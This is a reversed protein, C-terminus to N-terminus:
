PESKPLIWDVAAWILPNSSKTSIADLIIDPADTVISDVRIAVMERATTQNNVTWVFVEKGSLHLNLVMSRTLFSAEVSYIDVDELQYLEGYAVATILQTQITPDCSKAEHVLSYDMSALICDKEADLSQILEVVSSVFSKEHGTSKLEIVLIIRGKAKQIFEELTPIKEGKFAPSFWSGVEMSQLDQYTVNWIDKDVGATRSLNSDHMLVLTGDKTQQVDIEAYTAGSEIAAELGSLTNEPTTLTSARHATVTTKLGVEEDLLFANYSLSYLGYGMLIFLVLFFRLPRLIMASKRISIHPKQFVFIQNESQYRYYCSSIFAFSGITVGIAWFLSRWKSLTYFFYWFTEQAHNSPVTYKIFLLIAFLLIATVLVLLGVVLLIWLFLWILTKLWKGHILAKSRKRAEQFRCPQLTIEHISFIWRFALIFFLFCLASYLVHLAPTSKIYDLIFEPIELSQLLGSSLTVGTMPLILFIFVFLLANKPRVISFSKKAASLFLRFIGTRKGQVGNHFYLVIATMEILVYFTLIVFLILLVLLTSPSQLIIPLTQNSLFSVGSLQLAFQLMAQLAPFVIIATILKYIIEFLFLTSWDWMILHIASRFTQRM